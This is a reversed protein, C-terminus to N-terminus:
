MLTECVKQIVSFDQDDAVSFCILTIFTLVLFFSLLLLHREDEEEREDGM